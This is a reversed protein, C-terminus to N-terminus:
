KESSIRYDPAVGPPPSRRFIRTSTIAENGGFSEAKRRQDEKARRDVEEPDCIAHLESELRERTQPRAFALDTLEDPDAALDFLQPPAGVHHVLKQNTDRIMFSGALSGTGHYEAFGTRRRDSGEIAPWLSLGPLDADEHSLPVGTAALITPFLDVHSAIENVVKGRPIGPGAFILPVGVADEYLCSKGFLGHAGLMEGHDATYVVRTTALLGLEEVTGMVSAIQEDLFTVLAAYGAAIRRLDEERWMDFYNKSQRLAELAPHMPHEAPEYQVPLAMEGPPYLDLLRQPVRFPPHPSTYSVLLVWRTHRTSNTRLWKSAEATVTEDYQQYDSTGAGLENLYVDRQALMPPEQGSWRLLASLQGRGDVIHMPVIEESFGNDDEASRYHLKGVATTQVGSDRLRLMWSARKGDFAHINDWYGTQHPFRGTALSARAPCCLPSACYANTFLTGQAALRDITPTRVQPHGYCGLFRRSHNDSQFIILNTPETM